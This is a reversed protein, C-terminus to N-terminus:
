RAPKPGPGLDRALWYTGSLGILVFVVDDLRDAANQRM